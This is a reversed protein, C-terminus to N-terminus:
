KGFRFVDLYKINMNMGKHDYIFLLMDYRFTINKKFDIGTVWYLIM